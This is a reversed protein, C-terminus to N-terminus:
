RSKLLTLSGNESVCAQLQGGRTFGGAAAYGTGGLAIFLALAGLANSKLYGLGTSVM